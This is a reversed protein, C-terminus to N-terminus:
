YVAPISYLRARYQVGKKKTYKGDVLTPWIINGNYVAPESGFDLVGDNLELSLPSRSFVAIEDGEKFGSYTKSYIKKGTDSVVVYHLKTTRSYSYKTVKKRHITTYLIAFRSDSLKVMHVVGIEVPSTKPNYKTLWQFKKKGTERDCLILFLNYKLDNGFGSVGAVKKKHPQAMGCVLINKEGIEMGGVTCGTDNDGKKGKFDFVTKYIYSRNIDYLTQEWDGDRLVETYPTGNYNTIANLLLGRPYADGHDLTYLANDKLKVFQQFSHSVYPAHANTDVTMTDTNIVFSINSQHNVGERAFMTRATHLFLTNGQMDMRCDGSAFPVFIGTFTYSVGGKISAEKLKKWEGNYQIVKIVTKKKSEKLNDYGVTVYFRGDIGAYFGGWCDYDLKILKIRKGVKLSSAVEYIELRENYTLCVMYRKGNSQYYYTHEIQTSGLTSTVVKRKNGSRPIFQGISKSYDGEGEPYIATMKYYYTIGQKVEQEYSTIGADAEYICQYNGNEETSRYLKYGTAGKMAEWKVELSKRGSPQVSILQAKIKEAVFRKEESEAKNSFGDESNEDEVFGIVKYGYMKYLETSVSASTKDEGYLIAAQEWDQTYLYRKEIIYGDCGSVREWELTVENYGTQSIGTIEFEDQAGYTGRDINSLEFGAEDGSDAVSMTKASFVQQPFINICLVAALLLAMVKKM